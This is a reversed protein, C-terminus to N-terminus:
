LDRVERPNEYISPDNHIGYVPIILPTGKEITVNSDSIKYNKTAERNLMPVPPYMRMIENLCKELFKLKDINEFTFNNGCLSEDIESQLKSQMQPNKALEFILFSM